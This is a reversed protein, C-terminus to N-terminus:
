KTDKRKGYSCYPNEEVPNLCGVMGKHHKCYFERDVASRCYLHKCDKCYVVEQVDATPQGNVLNEFLEFDQQKTTTEVDNTTWDDPANENIQKILAEREIYEKESM